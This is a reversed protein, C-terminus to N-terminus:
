INGGSGSLLETSVLIFEGINNKLALFSIEM